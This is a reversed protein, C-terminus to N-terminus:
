QQEVLIIELLKAKIQEREEEPLKIWLSNVRKRLEVAAL